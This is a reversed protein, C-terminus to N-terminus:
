QLTQSPPKRVVKRIKANPLIRKLYDLLMKESKMHEFIKDRLEPEPNCDILNVEMVFSDNSPVEYEVSV